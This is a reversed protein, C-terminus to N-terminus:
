NECKAIAAAATLEGTMVAQLGPLYLDMLAVNAEVLNQILAISLDDGHVDISTKCRVDGNIWDMELNGIILGYNARMIFEVAAVRMGVSVKGPAFSYFACQDMSRNVFARCNLVYHNSKISLEVVDDRGKIRTFLWGQSQFFACFTTLHDTSSGPLPESFDTELDPESWHTAFGTFLQSGESQLEEPLDVAQKM